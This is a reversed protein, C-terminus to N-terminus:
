CCKSSKLNEAFRFSNSSRGRGAATREIDEWVAAIMDCECEKIISNTDTLHRGWDFREFDIAFDWLDVVFQQPMNHPIEMLNGTGLLSWLLWKGLFVQKLGRYVEDMGYVMEVEEADPVDSLAHYTGWIARTVNLCFGLNEFYVGAAYCFVLNVLSTPPALTPEM